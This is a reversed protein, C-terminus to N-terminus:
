IFSKLLQYLKIYLVQSAPITKYTYLVQTAPITKYLPSSYSKSTKAEGKARCTYLRNIGIIRGFQDCVFVYVYLESLSYFGEEGFKYNTILLRLVVCDLEAVLFAILFKHKCDWHLEKTAQIISLM